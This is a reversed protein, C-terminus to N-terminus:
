AETVKWFGEEVAIGKKSGLGRYREFYIGDPGNLIKGLIWPDKPDNVDTAFLRGREDLWVDFDSGTTANQPRLAAELVGRVEREYRGWCTEIHEHVQDLTRATGTAHDQAMWRAGSEVMAATVPQNRIAAGIFTEPSDAPKTPKPMWFLVDHYIERWKHSWPEDRDPEYSLWADSTEDRGWKCDTMRFEGGLGDRCWLDVERGDKPASQMSQWDNM